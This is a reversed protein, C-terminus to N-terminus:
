FKRYYTCFILKLCPNDNLATKSVYPCPLRLGNSVSEIVEDNAMEWFPKEGYTM